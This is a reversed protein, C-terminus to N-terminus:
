QLAGPDTDYLTPEDGVLTMEVPIGVRDGAKLLYKGRGPHRARGAAPGRDAGSHWSGASSWSAVIAKERGTLHRLRSVEALERDSMATLATIACRDLFGRAKARDADTGVAALDDLSHTLMLHAVSKHRYVRTLADAQEVLASSGRLARWMEDLVALFRRPPALGLRALAVSAEIVAHGYSWTALMSAAMLVDGAGTVASLDVCVTPAALDLATTTPGDFVGKLPGEILGYLTRRLPTTEEAFQRSAVQAARVLPDHARILVALVDPVTPEARRGDDDAGTLVDVAAGLVAAEWDALGGPRVLACLALLAGLRQGRVEALMTQRATGSMRALAQGLPGADLPNIRDLGRGVRIVQGGASRTVPVYEGKPDGLVLATVGTAMLGRIIRKALSTKGAGPAGMVMMGLNTVLGATHWAFPDCCVVERTTLHRGVPVGDAPAGSGAVFPFLGAMQTTTGAYAWPRVDVHRSGLDVGFLSPSM